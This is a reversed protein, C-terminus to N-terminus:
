EGWAVPSTECGVSIKFGHAMWEVIGGRLSVAELGAAILMRCAIASRNGTRSYVLFRKNADLHQLRASLHDLPLLTAGAIRASVYEAGTRVDLLEFDPTGARERILAHGEQVTVSHCQEIANLDTEMTRVAGPASSDAALPKASARANEVAKRWRDNPNM